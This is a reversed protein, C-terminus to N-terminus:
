NNEGLDDSVAAVQSLCDKQQHRCSCQEEFLHWTYRHIRAWLPRGETACKCVQFYQEYANNREFWLISVGDQRKEVMTIAVDLKFVTSSFMHLESFWSLWNCLIHRIKRSSKKTSAWLLTSFWFSDDQHFLFNMGDYVLDCYDMSHMAWIQVYTVPLKTVILYLPM